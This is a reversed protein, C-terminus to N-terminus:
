DLGILRQIKVQMKRWFDIFQGPLGPAEHHEDEIYEDFEEPASDEVEETENEHVESGTFGVPVSWIRRPPNEGILASLRPSGPTASLAEQRNIFRLLGVGTAFQPANVRKSWGDLETPIGLRVPMGFVQGAMEVAGPLLAGGGSLIIGAPASQRLRAHGILDLSMEFLEMMRAEIIEGLLAPSLQMREGSGAAQVELAQANILMRPSAAGREIKLREAIEFPTRLGISIDRTVLNGGVPLIASYDIGDNAFIAIDSTGGGIDILAVGMEREQATTVAEGTAIPELVLAQAEFGAREICSIVNKLYGPAGTVVHTDVELQRGNMGIPRRVGSHSDVIYDRPQIHIIERSRPVEMAASHLVRRLDASTLTGDEALVTASSRINTSNIHEGTVGAIVSRVQVGAMNGAREVSSRIADVTEDVDVVVGKKVGRSPVIGVGDISLRGQEDSHGVVTCVKTTGIDLGVIFDDLAV